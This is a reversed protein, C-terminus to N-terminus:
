YNQAAREELSGAQEYRVPEYDWSPGGFTSESGGGYGYGGGYGGYMGWPGYMDWNASFTSENADSSPQFSRWILIRPIVRSLIRQM